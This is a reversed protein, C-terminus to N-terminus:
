CIKSLLEALAIAHIEKEDYLEYFDYVRYLFTTVAAVAQGRTYTKTKDLRANNIADAIQKKTKIREDSNM